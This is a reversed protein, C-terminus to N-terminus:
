VGARKAVAKVVAKRFDGLVEMTADIDDLIQQEHTRQYTSGPPEKEWWRNSGITEVLDPEALGVRRVVENKLHFVAAIARDREAIEKRATASVKPKPDAEAEEEAKVRQHWKRALPKIQILGTGTAVPAHGISARRDNMLALESYAMRIQRLWDSGFGFYENAKLWRGYERDQPMLKRQEVLAAGLRLFGTDMEEQGARMQEAGARAEQTQDGIPVVEAITMAKGKEHAASRGEEEGEGAEVGPPRVSEGRHRAPRAHASM